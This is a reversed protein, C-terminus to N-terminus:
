YFWGLPHHNRAVAYIQIFILLCVVFLVLRLGYNKARLAVVGLAIYAALLALKAYLWGNAFMAPPVMVVLTFGLFLLLSDICYGGMRVVRQQQWKM